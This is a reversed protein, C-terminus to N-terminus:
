KQNCTLLWEKIMEKNNDIENELIADEIKLLLDSIWKGPKKDYLTTLSQGNIALDNRSKIPLKKYEIIPVSSSYVVSGLITRIREIQTITDLNNEFLLRKTWGNKDLAKLTSVNKVVGNILRSPLKWLRLFLDCEKIEILYCILTWYEVRDELMFWKYKSFLKVIGKKDTLGPLYRYLSTEVLMECARQCNEGRLMKEFEITIREISIKDLLNAHKSIAEKTEANITFSLQSVFRIARMMRLADENFREYPDGVTQIIKADIANIGGFPDIIEGDISMAIANMTFDRRQLDDDLKKVFTVNKPRRFDLYNEETRFTTVEFQDGEFLVIITGHSAGVDITKPFISMTESPEASTAIDIDGIERKLHFDRVAGGVFYAEYGYTQLTQIIKKGKQFSEIM